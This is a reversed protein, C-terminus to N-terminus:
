HGTFTPPRKELFADVAEVHDKSLLTVMEYGTASDFAVGLAQKVLKNVALKTYRVAMPAGAALRRAFALATEQLEDDAVVHNVLGMEHAQAATLPDGTMLYEKARAPGIALPWAVTGGDGAVIGARVHPDAIRASEGLFIVDSFLTISTALGMAFGHVATVIPLEVDLMDWILQKADRNLEFVKSPERLKKFWEFDGGASFAKGRASLLVANANNEQKLERFLIVLDHHMSENVANLPNDPSDIIVKLVDGDYEIQLNTFM